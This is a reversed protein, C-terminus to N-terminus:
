KRECNYKKHFAVYCSVIYCAIHSSWFYIFFTYGGGLNDSLSVIAMSIAPSHSPKWLSLFIQFYKLCCQDCKNGLSGSRLWNIRWVAFRHTTLCCIWWCWVTVTSCLFLREVTKLSMKHSICSANRNCHRDSCGIHAYWYKHNTAYHLHNISQLYLSYWAIAWIPNDSTRYQNVSM